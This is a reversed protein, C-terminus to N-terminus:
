INIKEKIIYVPRNKSEIHIQSLYEGIIGLMIFQLGGIFLILFVLGLVTTANFLFLIFTIFAVVLFTIGLYIPIRLPNTSFSTIGTIAYNLLKGFSFSSTGKVREEPVYPLYYTNYGVYSFIGKSFRVKEDLSLIAEVVCRRFLRFDSAGERFEVQSMANIILYFKKKFFSLLKGEKRKEQYTAVVDYNDDKELIDLMNLVIMPDQQMDADIICIYDGKAYKLGALMAAEKGFNRSFSLVKVCKKDDKSIEKLEGYTNDCSGSNVFIMEYNKVKNYKEKVYSYITKINGEENYCPIVLSLKM